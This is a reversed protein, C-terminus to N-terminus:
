AQKQQSGPIRSALFVMLGARPIRFGAGGLDLAGPIMGAEAWRRITNSTVGLYQELDTPTWLTRGDNLLWGYGPVARLIQEAEKETM